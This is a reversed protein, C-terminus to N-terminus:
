TVQHMRSVDHCALTVTFSSSHGDGVTHLFIYTELIVLMLVVNEPELVRYGDDV